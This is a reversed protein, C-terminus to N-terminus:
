LQEGRKLAAQAEVFVHRRLAELVVEKSRGRRVEELDALDAGCGCRGWPQESADRKCKPCFPGRILNKLYQARAERVSLHEYNLLLEPSLVWELGICKYRKFITREEELEQRRKREKVLQRRTFFETLGAVVVVCFVGGIVWGRMRFEYDANLLRLAAQGWLWIAAVAAVGVVGIWPKLLERLVWM